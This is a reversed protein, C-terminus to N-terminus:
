PTSSEANMKRLRDRDTAVTIFGSGSRRALETVLFFERTYFEYPAGFLFRRYCSEAEAVCKSDVEYDMVWAQDSVGPLLLEEHPNLLVNSYALMDEKRVTGREFRRLEMPRWGTKGSETITKMLDSVPTGMAFSIVVPVPREALGFGRVGLQVERAIKEFSDLYDHLDDLLLIVRSDKTILSPYAGQAEKILNGFEKRIAEAIVRPNVKLPPPGFHGIRLATKLTPDLESDDGTQDFLKLSIIPGEDLPEFGLSDRAIEVSEHILMALELPGKPTTWEKSASKRALVACPVHGERIAQLTLEELLRTRGYGKTEFKLEPEASVYIALVNNPGDVLLDRFATFFETRGCFVPKRRLEYPKMRTGLKGSGGGVLKEGPAYDAPVRASKYIVPFGWDVSRTSDEGEAIAARRGKATAAVLAEGSLLSDSFTRTFLRCALDSVRGSMAIVVPVGQRVLEAALPAISHPGLATGSDCASLLVIQAPAQDAVLWQWIQGAFFRTQDSDPDPKVEIYSARSRADFNGHCIFHVVEPRFRVIRDQILRPSANELVMPSIREEMQARLLGMIEAGPRISSDTLSTGIVFLVRPTASLKGPVGTSELVVRTVAIDLGKNPAFMHGAALFQAGDHMMEWHLRSLNSDVPSWSLALEILREGQQIALSIAERWLTDGLLNDFLYRGYEVIHEPKRKVIEEYIALAEDASGAALGSEPMDNTPFPLLGGNGDDRAAIKRTWNKEECGIHAIWNGDSFGINIDFRM